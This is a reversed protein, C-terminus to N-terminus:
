RRSCNLPRPLARDRVFRERLYGATNALQWVAFLAVTAVARRMRPQAFPRRFVSAYLALDPVFPPAGRRARARHYRFAGRGYGFHQRWFGAFSLDHRHEVKAGPVRVLERGSRLWRDALERDEATRFSPDFGGIAAYRDARLALNNSPFFRLDSGRAHLRDLAVDVIAQSAAACVNRELANATTGGCLAEPARALADVLASLWGRDPVCDDDTFALIEGAVVRAGANRAAAPGANPQRLLRTRPGAPGAATSAEAAPDGGDDVVVVEYREPPYDQRSLAELCARLAAARGCTPVVVSVFPLVSPVVRPRAGAASGRPRGPDLPGPM